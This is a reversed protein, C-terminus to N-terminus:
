PASKIQCKPCRIPKNETAQPVEWGQDKAFDIFGLTNTHNESKLYSGCGACTISYSLKPQNSM